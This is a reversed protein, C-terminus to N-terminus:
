DYNSEIRNFAPCLYDRFAALSKYQNIIFKM